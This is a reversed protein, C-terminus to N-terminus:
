GLPSPWTNESEAWPVRGLIRPNPWPSEALYERIRGLHSLWTNESEALPVRVVWDSEALTIM